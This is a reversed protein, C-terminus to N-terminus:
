EKVDLVLVRLKGQALKISLEENLSVQKSDTIIKGTKNEVIAFGRDLISLPSVANLVSVKAKLNSEARNKLAVMASILRSEILKLRSKDDSFRRLPSCLSLKRDLFMIKE